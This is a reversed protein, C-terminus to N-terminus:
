AGTVNGIIRYDNSAVCLITAASYQAGITYTTGAVGGGYVTAGSGSVVTVIGAGDQIIDVRQGATFGTTSDVTVTVDSASTFRLMTGQDSSAITYTTSASDTLTTQVNLTVDGSTGGGTLGVGATVSTIDGPNSVSQWASGDYYQLANTDALYVVMGEVVIGSVLAADRATADAFTMVTQRMLYTDVDAATLIEGATFDKFAM